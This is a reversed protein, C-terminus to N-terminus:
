CKPTVRKASPGVVTGYRRALSALKGRYVDMDARNWDGHTQCRWPAYLEKHFPSTLSENHGIVNRLEIRKQQMLWVTLALSAQLQRPNSLIDQDSRGVHEIGIATYNLGVTHRCMMTTPVLQYITGDKDVVFHSCDGPLEGLEGDPTDPAFTNYVSSFTDSVTYHEVIVQPRTLRWTDLGYHRLAYAAMEARRKAPYPILKVVIRPKPARATVTVANAVDAPKTATRGGARHNKPENARSGQVVTSRPAYDVVRQRPATPATQAQARNSGNDGSTAVAIGAAAGAVVLIAAVIGLFRQRRKRREHQERRRILREDLGSNM